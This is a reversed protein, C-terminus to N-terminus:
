YVRFKGTSSACPGLISNRRPSAGRPVQMWAARRSPRGASARSAEAQPVRPHISRQAVGLSGQFLWLLITSGAVVAVIYHLEDTGQKSRNSGQKPQMHVLPDTATAEAGTAEGSNENRSRNSRSRRRTLKKKSRSRIFWHTSGSRPALSSFFYLSIFYYKLKNGVM